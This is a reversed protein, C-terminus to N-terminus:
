HWYCSPFKIRPLRINQHLKKEELDQLITTELSSIGQNLVKFIADGTQEFRTLDLKYNKFVGDLAKSATPLLTYKRKASTTEESPHLRKRSQNHNCTKYHLLFNDYRGFERNCYPCEFVGNHYKKTHKILNHKLTFSQNCIHCNFNMTLEFCFAAVTTSPQLLQLWHTWYWSSNRTSTTSTLADLILKSKM